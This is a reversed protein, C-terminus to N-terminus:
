TFINTPVLYKNDINSKEDVNISKDPQLISMNPAHDDQWIM